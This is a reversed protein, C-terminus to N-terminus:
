EGNALEEWHVKAMEAAEQGGPMCAANWMTGIIERDEDVLRVIEEMKKELTEIRQNQEEEVTKLVDIEDEMKAMRDALNVNARREMSLLREMAEIRKEYEVTIKDKARQMDLQTYTYHDYTQPVDVAIIPPYYVGNRLM